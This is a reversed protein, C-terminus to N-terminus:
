KKNTTNQTEKVSKCIAPIAVAGSILVIGVAIAKGIIPISTAANVLVNATQYGVEIGSPSIKM